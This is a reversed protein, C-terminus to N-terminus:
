NLETRYITLTYTRMVTRLVPIVFAFPSMTSVAAASEGDGDATSEGDDAGAEGREADGASGSFRGDGQRALFVGSAPRRRADADADTGADADADTDDDVM